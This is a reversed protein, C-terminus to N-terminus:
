AYLSDVFFNFNADFYDRMIDTEGPDYYQKIIAEAKERDDRTMDEIKVWMMPTFGGRGEHVSIKRGKFTERMEKRVRKIIEDFTMALM